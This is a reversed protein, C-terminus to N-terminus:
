GIGYDNDEFKPCDYADGYDDLPLGYECAGDKCHECDECTFYGQIIM